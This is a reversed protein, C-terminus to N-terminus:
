EYTLKINFTQISASEESKKSPCSNSYFGKIITHIMNKMLKNKEFYEEFIDEKTLSEVFTSM